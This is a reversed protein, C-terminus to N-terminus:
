LGYGGLARLAMLVAWLMTVVGAVVSLWKRIGGTLPTSSIIGIGQMTWLLGFVIFFNVEVWKQGVIDLLHLLGVATFESAALVLVATTVAVGPRKEKVRGVVAVIAFVGGVMLNAIALGWVAVRDLAQEM